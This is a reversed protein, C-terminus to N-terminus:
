RGKCKAALARAQGPGLRFEFMQYLEDESMRDTLGNLIQEQRKLAKLTLAETDVQSDLLGKLEKKVDRLTPDDALNNLEGPDKSLDFLLDDYWTFHVYKWRGKRIMFSGTCNGESHNESYVFEPSAKKNGNMLPVLSHGRLKSPRRAGALDLLTSIMDVHGVPRDITVGRPIGAGAILMPVHIAEEYLSNHFFLGHEGMSMGNDSTFVFVTNDLQNTQKLTDWIQGVYEDLESIMGYYGALARRMKDEALPTALRKFRRLEQFVLHQNELDEPSVGPLRISDPPYMDWYKKLALFGLREFYAVHPQHLGVYLVWPKGPTKSEERIFKTAMATWKGDEHQTERPGGNVNPREGIRYGLPRRFLATIDPKEVHGHKSEFEEFGTDFNGNLDLKGISRAYYGAKTLYDAWVAHSGDWPTANCFSNSDSSYMGTMMSTRGPACVPSGCYANTFVAGQSAILDLNPTKIRPHGAFGTDRFSQNDSCVFVINPRRAAGLATPVQGVSTSAALTAANITMLKGFERRSLDPM